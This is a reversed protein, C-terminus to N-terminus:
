EATKGIHVKWAEPGKELYKWSFNEEGRVAAMQYGLPKPGHDNTIIFSEGVNLEDYTDFITSHKKHLPIKRVDIEEVTDPM